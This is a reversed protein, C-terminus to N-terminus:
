ATELLRAAHVLHRRLVRPTPHPYADGSMILNHIAGAFLFAVAAEDVDSRVRGLGREALLYARFASEWDGPGEGTNTVMGAFAAALDPDGAVERALAVSPSALLQEAFWAVNAGVTGRGARDLLAARLGALREFESRLIELVIENRDAFVKYPLGVACGAENALARMTLAASGDRAVLARAHDILSRRLEATAVADRRVRGMLPRVATFV